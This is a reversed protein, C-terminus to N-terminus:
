LLAPVRCLPMLVSGVHPFLLPAGSSSPFSEEPRVRLPGSSIRLDSAWGIM